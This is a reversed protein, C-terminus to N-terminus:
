ECALFQRTIHCTQLVVSKQILTVLGPPLYLKELYTHLDKTVVGTVSIVIPIITVVQLDWMRKLESALNTYKNIKETETKRLNHTLPCAIDIITGTHTTKNILIIDPRNYDITKDTKVPRDWYLLADKSELVPFPKYRYYPEPNKILDHKLALQIHIIKAVQNHRSLYANDALSPCGATIHEITEGPLHCKRCKDDIKTKLIFKEYNRTRIVSDQIATIFGETEPFLYGQRLWLLSDSKNVTTDDLSKPYKGHLIKSQWTTHAHDTSQQTYNRNKQLNLATFNKDSKVILQLLPNEKQAFYNYMTEEQKKCLRFINVLGRGGENRPLYLREVSSRPHHYRFKTLLRRTLRDMDHLDTDSYKLIGFTYTLIPIAWTNIATTLNKSTLKTNLLKTLRARYKEKFEKKLQTHNININQPLGLYKYTDSESMVKITEGDEPLKPSCKGKEIVIIACKDLGFKMNIDKSFNETTKTLEQLKQKNEAYLKIDDIYLLHNIKTGHKIDFNYGANTKHLLHSLPNIALCFWMPSLSDGQLIGRKIQVNGLSNNMCRLETNWSNMIHKLTTIIKPHIKYISLVKLMWDHPVSDFAKCYDIYCMHLDKQKTRAHNTIVTDIILQEKCGLSGKVCGKQEPALINNKSCHETLKTNLISTFLKYITSLCTIPRYNKPDRHDGKKYLLQTTGSAIFTPLADPSNLIDNFSRALAEHTSPLYKIWYNQIRDPGPTKWNKLNKAAKIVDDTTITVDIMEDITNSNESISTLWKADDNYRAPTSWLENWYGYMNEHDIDAGPSEPTPNQLSNYFKKQNNVFEINQKKRKHTVKYRRLRAAKAKLQQRLNDQHIILKQIYDPDRSRLKIEKCIRQIKNDVKRSQNGRLHERIIDVQARYNNISNSIRTYWQPDHENKPRKRNDPDLLTQENLQTITAAAAYLTLHVKNLDRTNFLLQKVIKDVNKITNATDKKFILKPIIPRKLPDSHEFFCYNLLLIEEANDKAEFVPEQTPKTQNVKLIPSESEKREATLETQVGENHMIKGVERRLVEIEAETLYKKKIIANRRDILNQETIQLHPYRNSFELYFKTRWGPLPDDRCQNSHYYTKIVNENMEKSWKIRKTTEKRRAVVLPGVGPQSSASVHNDVGIDTAATTAEPQDRRTRQLGDAERWQGSTLVQNGPGAGAIGSGKEPSRKINVLNEM